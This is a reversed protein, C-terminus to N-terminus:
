YFQVLGEPLNSWYGKLFEHNLFLLRATIVRTSLVQDASLLGFGQSFM